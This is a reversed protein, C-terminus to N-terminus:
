VTVKSPKRKPPDIWVKDKLTPKAFSTQQQKLVGKGPTAEDVLVHTSMEDKKERIKDTYTKMFGDIFEPALKYVQDLIERSLAEDSFRFIPYHVSDGTLHDTGRGLPMRCYYKDGHRRTVVIGRLQIEISEVTITVYLSGRLEKDKVLFPYFNKLEVKISM